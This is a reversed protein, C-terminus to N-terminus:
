LPTPVWTRSPFGNDAHTERATAVCARPRGTAGRGDASRPPCPSDSRPMLTRQALVPEAASTALRRRTRSGAFNLTAVPDPLVQPTVQKLLPTSCLPHVVWSTCDPVGWHRILSHLMVDNDATVIRQGGRDDFLQFAGARVDDPQAAALKVPTQSSNSLAWTPSASATTQAPSSSAALRSIAKSALLALGDTRTTALSALSTSRAATASSLPGPAIRSTASSVAGDTTSAHRARRVCGKSAAPM